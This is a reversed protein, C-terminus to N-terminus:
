ISHCSIFRLPINKDYRITTTQILNLSRFLHIDIQPGVSCRKDCYKAVREGM